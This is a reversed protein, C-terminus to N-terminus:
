RAALALAHETGANVPAPTEDIVVAMSNDIPCWATSRGPDIEARHGCELLQKM